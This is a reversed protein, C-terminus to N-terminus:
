TLDEVVATAAESKVVEIGHDRSATSEYMESMGVVEGNAAKLTFYHKGNTSEQRSYRAEDTSNEKVSQIGWECMAKTTYGEGILVVEHNGSSRLHFYYQSDAGTKIQFTAM